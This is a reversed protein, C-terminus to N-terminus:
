SYDTKIELDKIRMVREYIKGFRIFVDEWKKNYLTINLFSFGFRAVDEGDEKVTIWMSEDSYNVDFYDGLVENVLNSAKSFKEKIAKEKETIDEVNVMNRM